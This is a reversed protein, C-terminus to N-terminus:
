KINVEFEAYFQIRLKEFLEKRYKTLEKQSNIHINKM